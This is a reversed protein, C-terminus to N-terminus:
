ILIVLRQLLAIIKVSPFTNKIVELGLYYDQYSHTIYVATLIRKRKQIEDRVIEADSLTFPVDIFSCGERRDIIYCM